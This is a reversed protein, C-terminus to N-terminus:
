RCKGRAARFNVVLDSYNRGDGLESHSPISAPVTSCFDFIAPNGTGGPATRAMTNGYTLYGRGTVDYLRIRLANSSAIGFCKFTAKDLATHEQVKFAMAIGQNKNLAYYNNATINEDADQSTGYITQLLIKEAASQPWDSVLLAYDLFDVNSSADLDARCCWNNADDCSGELWHEALVRIDDFDVSDGGSINTDLDYFDWGAATGALVELTIPDPVQVTTKTGDYKVILNGAIGNGVIRGLIIDSNVQTRADGKIYLRGGSKLDILSTCAGTWVYADIDLVGGGYIIMAAIGGSGHGMELTANNTANHITLLGYVNVTQNNGGGLKFATPWADPSCTWTGYINVIATGSYIEASGVNTLTSGANINLTPTGFKMQFKGAVAGPATIDITTIGADKRHAVTQDTITPLRGLDWNATNEWTGSAINKWQITAASVVASLVFVLGICVLRRFMKYEEM